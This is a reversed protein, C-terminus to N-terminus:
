AIRYIRMQGNDFEKSFGDISDGNIMKTYITEKKLNSKIDFRGSPQDKPIKVYDSFHDGAAMLVAFFKGLDDAMVLSYTARYKAAIQKASTANESLFFDAVDKVKEDSEYPYWLAYEIKHWPKTADEYGAITNRIEKSAERIVVGHNGIKEIGDAYDWWALVVANKETNNALWQYGEVAKSDKLFWDMSQMGSFELYMGLLAAAVVIVVAVIGKTRRTIEEQTKMSEEESPFYIRSPKQLQMKRPCWGTWHRIIEAFQM